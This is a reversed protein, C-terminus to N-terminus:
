SMRPANVLGLELRTFVSHVLHRNNNIDDMLMKLRHHKSKAIPYGELTRILEDVIPLTPKGELFEDTPFADTIKELKLPIGIYDENAEDQLKVLLEKLQKKDHQITDHFTIQVM